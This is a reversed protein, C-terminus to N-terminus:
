RTLVSNISTFLCRCATKLFYERWFGFVAMTSENYDFKAHTIKGTADDVSLLLCSEENGFWIHYSGDFQQMEGENDKRARWTHWKKSQKRPKVKWLGIEVM